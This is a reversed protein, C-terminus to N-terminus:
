VSTNEIDLLVTEQIIYPNPANTLFCNVLQIDIPMLKIRNAHLTLFNAKNLLKIIYQEIYYQLVIFVNKSIKDIKNKQACNFSNTSVIHRVMREFSSKALVLHNSLKQQMKIAKILKTTHKKAKKQTLLSNHIYPVVGGGIFNVKVSSLLEKLEDDNQIGLEIDRVIIRTRKDQKCYCVGVELIQSVIYECITALYIPTNNAVMVSCPSFHKLFKEIISPPFIIGAKIQRSSSDKSLDSDYRIVAKEAEILSNKRLDGSLIFQMANEVEKVSYTKKKAYSILSFLIHVVQKLFICVFSNLQQKANSTLNNVPSIQKLVKLIFIEFFHNKKKKNINQENDNKM